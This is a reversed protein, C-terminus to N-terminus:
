SPSLPSPLPIRGALINLVTAAALAATESRLVFPGLTAPHYSNALLLQLEEGTLGGEPGIVGVLATWPSTSSSPGPPTTTRFDPPTSALAGRRPSPPTAPATHFVLHLVPPSPTGESPSPPAGRLTQPLTEHLAQRTQFLTEHLALHAQALDPAPPLIEPLHPRGAQLCASRAIRLWRARAAEPDRPKPVSRAAQFFVLADVGLETVKEVILDAARQKVLGCALLLRPGPPRPALHIAHIRAVPRKPDTGALEGDYVRGTGDYLELPQGPRCRLVRLLHHAAEPPLLLPEPTIPRRDGPALGSWLKRWPPAEALGPDLFARRLRM